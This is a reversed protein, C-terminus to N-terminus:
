KWGSSIESGPPVIVQALEAGYQVITLHEQSDLYGCDIQRREPALSVAAARTQNVVGHGTNEALGSFFRASLKLEGLCVL